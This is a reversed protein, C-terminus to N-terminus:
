ECEATVFPDACGCQGTPGLDGGCIACAGGALWTQEFADAGGNRGIATLTGSGASLEVEDVRFAFSGDHSWTLPAATASRLLVKDGDVTWRGEDGGGFDCGSITWRFTGDEELRLNTADIQEYHFYGEFAAPLGEVAADVEVGDGADPEAETADDDGGCGAVALLM